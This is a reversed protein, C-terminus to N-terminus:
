VRGKIARALGEALLDQVLKKGIGRRRLIKDVTISEFLLIEGENLEKGWVGTGNKIPHHLFEDKVCGWRDFLDYALECTDQTPEEMQFYINARIPERDIRQAVINAIPVGERTEEAEFTKLSPWENYDGISSEEFDDVVESGVEEEMEEDDELEEIEDHDSQYPQKYQWDAVVQDM